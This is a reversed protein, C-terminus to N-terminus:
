PLHLVQWSRLLLHPFHVLKQPDPICKLNKCITFRTSRTRTQYSDNKWASGWSTRSLAATDAIRGILTRFQGLGDAFDRLFKPSKTKKPKLALKQAVKIAKKPKM